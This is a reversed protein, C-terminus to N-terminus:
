WAVPLYERGWFGFNGVRKTEGDLRLKPFHKFVARLTVDAEMRALHQGVCIHPGAGFTLHKHVDFRKRNLDFKNPNPFASEDRNASGYSMQVKANAPIDVGHKNIPCKTTRWLGLGPPDFRLSEEIAVPILNAPDANVKEWRTRDELLRWICNTLLYSTTENGGIILFAMLQQIELRTLRRGGDVRGCVLDSISDHPVIDGVHEPMPEDIGADKLLKEREDIFPDFFDCADQFVKVYDVPNEFEWATNLLRDAHHKLIKYNTDGFGLLYAATYVPMPAAYADYFNASNGDQKMKAILRESVAEVQTKITKLYKPMLRGQIIRRFQMHAEGDNIVTNPDRYMPAAGRSATYLENNTAAEKVDDYRFLTFFPNSLGTCYGVPNNQRMDDYVPFPNKLVDEDIPSYTEKEAM